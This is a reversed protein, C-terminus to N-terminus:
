DEPLIRPEFDMLEATSVETDVTLCHKFCADACLNCQVCDAASFEYRMRPKGDPGDTKPADAKVLAGTPCFVTCMGCGNCVEGDIRVSGFLRTDITEAVPSGLQDLANLLAERREVSFQPMHGTGVQLRERLTPQHDELKLKLVATTIAADKANDKTDLFFSRRAQGYLGREDELLVDEPFEGTWEVRAESGWAELLQNATDVVRGTVKRTHRYKCTRCEGDVLVLREAGQAALRVLLQEDIRSLCPVEAFKRPDGVHRAAIRGCAFVVQKGDASVAAEASRDLADDTPMLPALASTPCLTTCAGCKVCAGGDLSIENREIDIVEGAPCIDTCLSCNSNRNRVKVCRDARILVPKSELAQAVELIDGINPM